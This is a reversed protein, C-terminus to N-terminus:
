WCMGQQSKDHANSERPSHLGQQVLYPSPKVNNQKSRKPTDQNQSAKMSEIEAVGEEQEDVKEQRKGKNDAGTKRDAIEAHEETDAASNGEVKGQGDHDPQSNADPTKSEEEEDSHEPSLKKPTTETNQNNSMRGEDDKEKNPTQDSESSEDSDPKGNQEVQPDTTQVNKSNAPNTQDTDTPDAAGIQPTATTPHSDPETRVNDDAADTNNLDENASLIATEEDKSDKRDIELDREHHDHQTKSEDHDNSDNSNDSETKESEQGEKASKGHLDTSNGQKQISEGETEDTNPAGSLSHNTATINESNNPSTEKETSENSIHDNDLRKVAAESQSAGAQTEDLEATDQSNIAQINEDKVKIAALNENTNNKLQPKNVKTDCNTDSTAVKGEESVASDTVETSGQKDGMNGDGDVEDFDNQASSSRQIMEDEPSSTPNVNQEADATPAESGKQNLSDDKERHYKLDHANAVKEIHADQTDAMTGAEPSQSKQSSSIAKEQESSMKENSNEPIDSPEDSPEPTSEELRDNPILDSAEPNGPEQQDHPKGRENSKNQEPTNQKKTTTPGVKRSSRGKSLPNPKTAAKKMPGKKSKAQVTSKKNDTNKKPAAEEGEGEKMDTMGGEKVTDSGKINKGVETKDPKAAIPSAYSAALRKESLRMAISKKPTDQPRHALKINDEGEANSDNDNDEKEEVPINDKVPESNVIQQDNQESKDKIEEPKTEASNTEKSPSSTQSKTNISEKSSDNDPTKSYKPKKM